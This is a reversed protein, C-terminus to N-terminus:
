LNSRKARLSSFELIGLGQTMGRSSRPIEDFRRWQSPAFRGFCDWEFKRMGTYFRRWQPFETMALLSHFSRRLLRMWPKELSLLYSKIFSIAGEKEFGRLSSFELIGLSQKAESAIVFIRSNRLRTDDGSKIPPDWWLYNLIGYLSGRILDSSSM